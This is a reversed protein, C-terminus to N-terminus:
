GLRDPGRNVIKDEYRVILRGSKILERVGEDGKEYVRKWPEFSLPDIVEGPKSDSSEHKERGFVRVRCLGMEVDRDEIYRFLLPCPTEQALFLRLPQAAQKMEFM